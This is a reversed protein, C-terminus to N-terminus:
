PFWATCSYNFGVISGLGNTIVPYQVPLLSGISFISDGEINYITLRCLELPNNSNLYVKMLEGPLYSVKDTYGDQIHGACATEPIALPPGLNEEVEKSIEEQCSGLILIFLVILVRSM